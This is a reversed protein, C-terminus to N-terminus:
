ELKSIRFRHKYLGGLRHAHVLCSFTRPVPASSSLKPSRSQSHSPGVVEVGELSPPSWLSLLEFSRTHPGLHPLHLSSLAWAGALSAWGTPLEPTALAPLVRDPGLLTSGAAETDAGCCPEEGAPHSGGTGQAPPM